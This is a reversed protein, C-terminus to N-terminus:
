GVALSISIALLKDTAERGIHVIFTILAMQQASRQTKVNFHGNKDKGKEGNIM